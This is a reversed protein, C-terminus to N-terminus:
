TFLGKNLYSLHRICSISSKNHHVVIHQKFKRNRQAAGYQMLNTFTLRTVLSSLYAPQSSDPNRVSNLFEIMKDATSIGFGHGFFQGDELVVANVGRYWPNESSYDPNNFYVVDGPLYHDGYFTNIALDPDAHWSYLYIDQFLSDFSSQSISKSVAHYFIIMCATACEFAYLASNSYIDQVAESPRVDPRLRFGGAPTLEWYAPNCAAYQFTTFVVKTGSMEKASEIMNRRTQLEFLLDKMTPYSYVSKTDLMRKAIEEEISELNLSGVQQVPRGAVEIM